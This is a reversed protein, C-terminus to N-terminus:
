SAWADEHQFTVMIAGGVGIVMPFILAFASWPRSNFIEIIQSSTFFVYIVALAVSTHRKHTPAFYVGVFITCYAVLAPVIGQIWIEDFWSNGVISQEIGFMLTTVVVILVATTYASLPVLLWRLWNPLKDIRQM